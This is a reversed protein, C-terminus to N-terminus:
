NAQFNKEPEVKSISACPWYLGQSVTALRHEIVTSNPLSRIEPLKESQEKSNYLAHSATVARKLLGSKGNKNYFMM